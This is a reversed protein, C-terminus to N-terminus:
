ASKLFFTPEGSVLPSFNRPGGSQPHFFYQAGRFIGPGGPRLNQRKGLVQSEPNQSIITKTVFGRIEWAAENCYTELGVYLSNSHLSRTITKTHLPIRHAQHVINMMDFWQLMNNKLFYKLTNLFQARAQFTVTGANNIKRQLMTYKLSGTGPQM